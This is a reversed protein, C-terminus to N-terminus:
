PQPHSNNFQQITSNNFQQITSNNFQQIANYNLGLESLLLFQAQTYLNESNERSAIALDYIESIKNQLTNSFIPIPIRYLDPKSIYPAMLNTKYRQKFASGYKSILYALLTRNDIKRNVTIKFLSGSVLTYEPFNEPVIAAKELMGKVEILLEGRKIRGKPYRIWDSKDVRYLNNESIYPTELDTAQLFFPNEPSSNDTDYEKMTTTNEYVVRYGEAVFNGLFEYEKIKEFFTHYKKQFYEADFRDEKQAESSLTESVELRELLVQYRQSDFPKGDSLFFSLKEKKAFETFAEFIGDQTLGEHNFLDHDVMLHGHTDHRLKGNEDKLYIKEGSNDKSPKQMTAFFIPYDERRPNIGNDDTWKQLFLVSTKTGTHPKFVNGHLGVVALIRGHEALWKRIHADSSNNFRGQPLVIAMRGGPKLFDLNREIFLIDRGVKSQRKGKANNALEYLSLIQGEKIDGAFPPNAMLIDFNFQKNDRRGTKRLRRLRHWGAGYTAQWDEDNLREEWRKWDLTNLHLVNTQGDGAILNMTRAVRVAKEDFDIAFVNETVYDICLAPKNEATLFQNKNIGLDKLINDWVHFTCHMPFGCSGAATDIMKENAKPNLMKVCLDIVYRPTFYQGKAGKASQNILYEFAEDIVELNSNFLKVDQLSSVCIALHSATLELKSSHEFVGQWKQKAQNFLNQIKERLKIESSGDNRFELYRYQSRGSQMEDYLKTFILKFLEEFVDVGANALVEDEMELILEKLSKHETFLKDNKQLDELTWRQNLIDALSENSKPLGSIDEFYNPNKRHYFSIKQGNTWVAIPAGTAHCYSKLQDKGEKLKPKKTEIIIYPIDPHDEEFLVIDASKKERGFNVPYEFRINAPSYQYRYILQDTLLQRVVEEPKLQIEKNRIICRVYPMGKGRVQKISIREQLRSMEEAEFLNLPISFLNQLSPPLAFLDMMTIINENM